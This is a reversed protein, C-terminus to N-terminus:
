PAAIEMSSKIVFETCVLSISVEDIQVQLVQHIGHEPDQLIDDPPLPIGGLVLLLAKCMIPEKLALM